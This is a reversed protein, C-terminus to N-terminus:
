GNSHPVVSVSPYFVVSENTHLLLLEPRAVGPPKKM